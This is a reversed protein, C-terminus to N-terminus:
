KSMPHDLYSKLFEGASRLRKVTLPNQNTITVFGLTILANIHEPLTSPFSVQESLSRYTIGEKTITRLLSYKEQVTNDTIVYSEVVKNDEQGKPCEDTSYIGAKLRHRRVTKPQVGLEKALEADPVIGMRNYVDETWLTTVPAPPIGLAKRKSQIALRTRNIVAALMRDPMTGLLEIEADTWPALFAPIGQVRKRQYTVVATTCGLIEALDCDPMTGLLAIAEPSWKWYRGGKQIEPRISPLNMEVRKHKVAQPSRGIKKALVVDPM